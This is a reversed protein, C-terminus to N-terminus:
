AAGERPGKVHGRLAAEDDCTEYTVVRAPKEFDTPLTYAQCGPEAQFHPLASTSM